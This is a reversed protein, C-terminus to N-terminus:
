PLKRRNKFPKNLSHQIKDFSKRTDTSIIVHKGWKIRYIYYITNMSKESPSSRQIASIFRLQNHQIIRKIHQQIQSELITRHQKIITQDIVSWM